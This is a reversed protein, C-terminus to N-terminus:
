CYVKGRQIRLKGKDQLHRITRIVTEVRLGTMDAIEQRTLGIKTKHCEPCEDELNENVSKYMDIITSVKREPDQSAVEKLIIFKERLREAMLKTFSFHILPNERLMQLFIEKPLRMVLSESDAVATAVYPGGDLMPMDGFSEGPIIIKQVFEKGSDDVNMWKVKGDVLQHYYRAQSGEMFIIDGKAVKKYTAGYCLLTDIDVMPNM